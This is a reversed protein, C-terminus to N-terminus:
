AGVPRVWGRGVGAHDIVVLGREHLALATRWQRGSVLTGRDWTSGDAYVVPPVSGAASLMNEMAPSLKM